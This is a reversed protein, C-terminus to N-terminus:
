FEKALAVAARWLCDPAHECGEGGMYARANSWPQRCFFCATGEDPNQEMPDLDALQRVLEAARTNSDM